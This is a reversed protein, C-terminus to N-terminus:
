KKTLTRLMFHIENLMEETAQKEAYDLDSRNMTIANKGLQRLFIRVREGYYLDSVDNLDM